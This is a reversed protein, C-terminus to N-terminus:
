LATMLVMIAAMIATSGLFGLSARAFSRMPQSPAATAAM